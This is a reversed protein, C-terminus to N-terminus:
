HQAGGGIEFGTATVLVVFVSHSAAPKPNSAGCGIQYPVSGLERGEFPSGRGNSSSARSAFPQRLYVPSEVNIETALLCFDLL